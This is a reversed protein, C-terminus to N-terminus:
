RFGNLWQVMNTFQNERDCCQSAIHRIREHLKADVVAAEAGNIVDHVAFYMRRSLASANQLRRALCKRSDNKPLASIERYLRQAASEISENVEAIFDSTAIGRLRCSESLQDEAGILVLQWHARQPHPGEVARHLLRYRDSKIKILRGASTHVIVGERDLWGRVTTVWDQPNEIRGLFATSEVSYTKALSELAKREVLTGSHNERIGTLVLRDRPHDFVIPRQRSCWEFLPTQRNDLCARVLGEYDSTSSSAFLGAQDAIESRGRRTRWAYGTETPTPFVLSGDLKEFIAADQLPQLRSEDLPEFKPYPRAIVDGSANFTIGRTEWFLQRRRFETRTAAFQPPPFTDRSAREYVITVGDEEWSYVAFRKDQAISNVLESRSPNTVYTSRPERLASWHPRVREALYRIVPSLDEPVGTEPHSQRFKRWERRSRASQGMQGDVLRDLRWLPGDRSEFAIRISELLAKEELAVHRAILWLDALDKSRWARGEKEVLGHLKWAFGVEPRPANIHLPGYETAIDLGQHALPLPDGFGVDIQLEAPASDVDASVHLRVGPFDTEVFIVEHRFQGGFCVGDNEDHSLARQWHQAVADPHFSGTAVFDLDDADRRHRGVWLGTLFSGRLLLQGFPAATAGHRTWRRIAAELIANKIADVM